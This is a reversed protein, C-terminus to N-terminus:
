KLSEYASILKNYARNTAESAMTEHCTVGITMEVAAIRLALYKKPLAEAEKVLKDAESQLKRMRSGCEALSEIDTRQRLTNMERSERVLNQLKSHILLARKRFEKETSAIDQSSGVVFNTEAEAVKINLLESMSVNAGTLKEGRQGIIEKVKESQALPSFTVKINYKGNSLGEKEGLVSTFSGENVLVKDQYGKGLSPNNMSILLNASDPLNTLGIVKARGDETREVKLTLLVPESILSVENKIQSGEKDVDPKTDSQAISEEDFDSVKNNSTDQNSTCGWVLLIFTCLIFLRNKM